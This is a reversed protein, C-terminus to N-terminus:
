SKQNQSRQERAQTGTLYSNPGKSLTSTGKKNKIPTQNQQVAKNMAYLGQITAISQPTFTSDLSAGLFLSMAQRKKYPPMEKKLQAETIRNTIESSLYKHVEPYMSTFHKMHEMNLSGDNMRDLISSPSIALTLAKDYSRQIEKQVPPKDFPLQPQDKLPRISNLYNSVRGKAANLITNQEPYIKSFGDSSSSVMGGNAFGPVQAANSNQLQQNIQGKEIFKNLSEKEKNTVEPAIKSEGASMLSNIGNMSTKMGKAAQIAYHAANPIGSVENSILGKIIADTAYKNAKGMIKSILKELQQEILEFSIGPPIGTMAGVKAAVLWTIMGAQTKLAKDLGIKNLPMGDSGWKSLLDEMKNQVDKNELKDIGKGIMGEGLGFVGGTISGMLGAAGVHLLAASAPIEPDSGPRSLLAKTMEDCGTFSAAEVAGKVAMSGMRGLEAAQAAAEAGRAILGAEGTGYIMGGILGAAETTGHIVPNAEARGKIDEPNVGLVHTEGWTALPGALGHALGEAGTIAQQSLSSYKDENYNKIFEDPNFSQSNIFQDPDFGSDSQPQNQEIFSDPNFVDGGNALHCECPVIEGGDSM